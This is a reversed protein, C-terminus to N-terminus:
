EERNAWCYILELLINAPKRCNYFVSGLAPSWCHDRNNVCRLLLCSRSPLIRTDEPWVRRWMSDGQCIPCSMADYVGMDILFNVAAGEDDFLRALEDRPPINGAFTTRANIRTGYRRTNLHPVRYM